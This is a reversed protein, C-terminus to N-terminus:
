LHSWLLIKGPFDGTYRTGDLSRSRCDDSIYKREQLHPFVYIPIVMQESVLILSCWLMHLQVLWFLPCYCFVAKVKAMPNQETVSTVWVSLGPAHVIEYLSSCLQVRVVTVPLFTEEKGPRPLIEGM